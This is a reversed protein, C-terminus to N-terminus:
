LEILGSIKEDIYACWAETERSPVEANGRVGLKFEVVSRWESSGIDPGHGQSDGTPLKAEVQRNWQESCPVQSRVANDESDCASAFFLSILVAPRIM